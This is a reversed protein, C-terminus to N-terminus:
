EGIIMPLIRTKGQYQVQIWHMGSHQTGNFPIIDQLRVTADQRTTWHATVKGQPDIIRVTMDAKLGELYTANYAPNPYLKLASLEQSFDETSSTFDLWGQILAVATPGELVFEADNSMVTLALDLFPIYFGVSKFLINGAHGWADVGLINYKILGLGYGFEPLLPIVNQMETLAVPSLIEGKLLSKVLRAIDHPTGWWAGAAWASSFLSNLSFGASVVDLKGFGPIVAWPNARPDTPAEYVGLTISDLGLPQLIQNRVYTHYAEGSVAEIVKGALIYNTNCYSWTTGPADLPALVYSNLIENPTFIKTPNGQVEAALDPNNTYDYVGSTHNLCQRITISSNINPFSGIHSQIPDDLLLKGEDWLKMIAMATITKSISGMGMAHFTDLPVAPLANVGTAGKWVSGDPFIMAACLGVANGLQLYQNLTDQLNKALQPDLGNSRSPTNFLYQGNNSAPFTVAAPTWGSQAISLTSIFSLLIVLSNKLMIMIKFELYVIGLNITTVIWPGYGGSAGM